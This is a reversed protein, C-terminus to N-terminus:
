DEVHGVVEIEDSQFKDLPQTLIRFSGNFFRIIDGKASEHSLGNVRVRDGEFIEKGNKDTVGSGFKCDITQITGDPFEINHKM